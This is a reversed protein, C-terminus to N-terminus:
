LSMAESTDSTTATPPPPCGTGIAGAALEFRLTAVAERILGDASQQFEIQKLVGKCWGPSYKRKCVRAKIGLFRSAGKTMSNAVASVQGYGQVLPNSGTTIKFLACLVCANQTEGYCPVARLIHAGEPVGGAPIACGAPYQERGLAWYWKKNRDMNVLRKNQLAYGALDLPQIADQDWMLPWTGWMSSPGKNYLCSGHPFGQPTWGFTAKDGGYRGKM